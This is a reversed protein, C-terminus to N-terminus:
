NQTVFTNVKIPYKFNILIDFIRYVLIHEKLKRKKEKKLIEKFMM